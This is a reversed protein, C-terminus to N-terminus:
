PSSPAGYRDNKKRGRGISKKLTSSIFKVGDEVSQQPWTSLYHLSPLINGPAHAFAKILTLFLMRRHRNRCSMERLVGCAIRAIADGTDYVM